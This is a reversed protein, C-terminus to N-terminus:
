NNLENNKTKKNILFRIGVQLQHQYKFQEGNLKQYFPYSYKFNLGYNKFFYEMGFNAMMLYGGSDKTFKEGNLEDAGAKQLEYGIQPIFYSKGRILSLFVNSKLNMTNSFKFGNPNKTNIKYALYNFWGLKRYTLMYNALFIFDFSGSGPQYAPVVENEYGRIKYKGIPIEMGGGLTFRHGTKRRQNMGTFDIPHYNLVVVPDGIGSINDIVSGERILKVQHFPAIIGISSKDHWFINARLEVDNRYEQYYNNDAFHSHGSGNSGSQIQQIISPYNYESLSKEESSQYDLWRSTHVLALSYKSKRFQQDAQINTFNCGCANCANANNWQLLLGLFLVWCSFLNKM